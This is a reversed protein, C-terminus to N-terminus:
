PLTPISRSLVPNWGFHGWNRFPDIQYLYKFGGEDCKDLVYDLNDEGFDSILYSCSQAFDEGVRRGDDSAAAGRSNKSGIRKLAADGESGAIASVGFLAIKAGAIQADTGKVPEVLACKVGNVERM